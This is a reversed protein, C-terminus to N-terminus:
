PYGDAALGSKACTGTQGTVSATVCSGVINSPDVIRAIKLASALNVEGAVCQATTAAPSGTAYYNATETQCAFALTTGAASKVSSIQAGGSSVCATGPCNGLPFELLGSAATYKFYQGTTAATAGVYPLGSPGGLNGVTFMAAYVPRLTNGTGQNDFAMTGETFQTGNAGSVHVAAGADGIFIEPYANASYAMACNNADVLVSNYLDMMFTVKPPSTAPDVVFDTSLCTIGTGKICAVQPFYTTSGAASSTGPPSLGAAAVATVVSTTLSSNSATASNTYLASTGNTFGNATTGTYLGGNVTVTWTVPGQWTVGKYRGAPITIAGLSTATFNADSRKFTLSTAGSIATASNDTTVLSVATVPIVLTSPTVFGTASAFAGCAAFAPTASLPFAGFVLVATPASITQLAKKFQTQIM